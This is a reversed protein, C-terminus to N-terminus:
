EQENSLEAQGFCWALRGLLRAYILMVAALLPMVVIPTGWPSILIGVVSIVLWGGCMVIVIGYFLLWQATVTKLSRLIAPSYPWWRSEAALSSLQVIPFLLFVIFISPVWTDFIPRVLLRVVYGVLACLVLVYLVSLLGLVWARWDAAPWSTISDVGNATDEIVQLCCSSAYSLVLLTLVGVPPGMARIGIGGVQMAPGLLFCFGLGTLILGLSMGLWIGYTGPYWPFTFVGSLLPWEPPAAEPETDKEVREAANEFYERWMAKQSDDAKNM